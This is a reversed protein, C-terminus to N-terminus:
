MRVTEFLQNFQSLRMKNDREKIKELRKLDASDPVRQILDELTLGSSDKRKLAKKINSIFETQAIETM